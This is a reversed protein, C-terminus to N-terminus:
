RCEPFEANYCNIFITVGGETARYGEAIAISNIFVGVGDLEVRDVTASRLTVTFPNQNTRFSLIIRSSAMLSGEEISYVPQDFNIDLVAFLSCCTFHILCLLDNVIM